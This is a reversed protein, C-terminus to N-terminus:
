KVDQMIMLEENVDIDFEEGLVPKFIDFANRYASDFGSAKLILEYEYFDKRGSNIYNEKNWTLVVKCSFKSM